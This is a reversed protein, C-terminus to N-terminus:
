KIGIKFFANSLLSTFNIPPKKKQGDVPLAERGKPVNCLRMATRKAKCDITCGQYQVSQLHLRKSLSM